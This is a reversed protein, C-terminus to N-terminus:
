TLMEVFSELRMRTRSDLRGSRDMELTLIPLSLRRRLLIDEVQRFCFSQVYHIIGQLRRRAVEAEIDRLRGSLTYPYTFALYRDVLDGKNHPLTFQRQVEHFVVRAGLEELFQFVEPTIPPVGVYGLRVTIPKGSEAVWPRARLARGVAEEARSAFTEPDGEMDSCSVQLLHSELGSARGEEWCLRDLEWVWRRAGDLRREAGEVEEWGVGLREMLREMEVQLSPRDPRCPYAFPIVEM